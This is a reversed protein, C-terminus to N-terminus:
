SDHNEGRKARDIEKRKQRFTELIRSTELSKEVFRDFQQLFQTFNDFGEPNNGSEGFSKQFENVHVKSKATWAANMIHLISAPKEQVREFLDYIDSNGGSGSSQGQERFIQLKPLTEQSIVELPKAHYSSIPIGDALRNALRSSIEIAEQTLMNLRRHERDIHDDIENYFARVQSRFCDSSGCIRCIHALDEPPKNFEYTPDKFFLVLDSFLELYQKSSESESGKNNLYEAMRAVRDIPCPHSICPQYETPQVALHYNVFGALYAPGGIKLAIIDACIEESWNEPLTHTLTMSSRIAESIKYKKEIAHGMEHALAIWMLPNAFDVYPLMLVVTDPTKPDYKVDVFAKLTNFEAFNYEPSYVVVPEFDLLNPPFLDRILIRIEPRIPPFRVFFKLHRHLTIFRGSEGFLLRRFYLLERYSSHRSSLSFMYVTAANLLTQKLVAIQQRLFDVLKKDAQVSLLEIQRLFFDLRCIKEVTEAILIQTNKLYSEHM